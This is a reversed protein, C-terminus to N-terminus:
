DQTRMFINEFYIKDGHDCYFPPTLVMDDM